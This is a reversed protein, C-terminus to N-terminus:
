WNLLNVFKIRVVAGTNVIVPFRISFALLYFMPFLDSTLNLNNYKMKVSTRNDVMNLQVLASLLNVFAGALVIGVVAGATMVLEAEFVVAAVVVVLAWVVVVETGFIENSM